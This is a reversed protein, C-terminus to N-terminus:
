WGITMIVADGHRLDLALVQRIGTKPIKLKNRTPRGGKQKKAPVLFVDKNEDRERKIGKAGRGMWASAPTDGVVGAGLGWSAWQCPIAAHGSVLRHAAIASLTILGVDFAPNYASRLRQTAIEALVDLPSNHASRLRQIAIEALVDLPSNYDSRLRQTVIVALADLPSPNHVKVETSATGFARHLREVVAQVEVGVNALLQLNDNVNSLADLGRPQKMTSVKPEVYDGDPVPITTSPDLQPIVTDIPVAAERVRFECSGALSWTLVAGTVGKEDLLLNQTFKGGPVLEHCLDVVEAYISMMDEDAVNHPDLAPLKIAHSYARGINLAFSNGRFKDVKHNTLMLREMPLDADDLMRLYADEYEYTAGAMAGYAHYRGLVHIITGGGKMDYFVALRGTLKGFDKLICRKFRIGCGITFKMCGPPFSDPPLGPEPPPPSGVNGIRGEWKGCSQCISFDWHVRLSIRGCDCFRTRKRDDFRKDPGWCPIRGSLAEKDSWESGFFAGDENFEDQDDAACSTEVACESRKRGRGCYSRKAAPKRERSVEKFIADLDGSTEDTSWGGFLAPNYPDEKGSCDVIFAESYQGDLGRRRFFQDCKSNLCIEEKYPQFSTIGCQSCFCTPRSVSEKSTGDELKVKVRADEGLWWQNQGVRCLEFLFKYRRRLGGKAKELVAWVAKVRYFAVFNFRGPVTMGVHTRAYGDGMIVGVANGARLSSILSKVGRSCPSQDYQLEYLSTEAANNSPGSSKKAADGGGHSVFHKGRFCDGAYAFGDLLFGHTISCPQGVSSLCGAVGGPLAPNIASAAAASKKPRGPKRSAQPASTLPQVHGGSIAAKEKVALADVVSRARARVKAEVDWKATADARKVGISGKCGRIRSGESTNTPM